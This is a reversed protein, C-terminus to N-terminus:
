YGYYPDYPYGRNYAFNEWYNVEDVRVVLPRSYESNAFPGFYGASYSSDRVEDVSVGNIFLLIQSGTAMVGLRNTSDPGSLIASNPTSYVLQTMKGSASYKGDWKKLFYRGECDIGFLYGRDADALVPVRFIMGWNDSDACWGSTITMELYFDALSKTTALRWGSLDTLTTLIMQGNYFYIDTYRNYGSPWNSDNNMYDTWHPAGLANRPDDESYAYPTVSPTTTISTTPTLTETTEEGGVADVAQTETLAQAVRTELIQEEAIATQTAEDMSLANELPNTTAPPMETLLSAVRTEVDMSENGGTNVNLVECSMVLFAGLLM